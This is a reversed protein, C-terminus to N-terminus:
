EQIFHRKNLKKEIYAMDEINEEKTEITLQIELQKSRSQSKREISIMADFDQITESNYKPGKVFKTRFIRIM